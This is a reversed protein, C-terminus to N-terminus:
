DLFIFIISIIIIGLSTATAYMQTQGNQLQRLAGGVNAGLWGVVNVTSDVINRDLWDSINAIRAYYLKTTILDEYLEDLYYKKSLLIHIPRFTRGVTEPYILPNTKYM